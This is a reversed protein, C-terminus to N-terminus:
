LFRTVCLWPDENKPCGPQRLSSAIMRAGNLSFGSFARRRSHLRTKKQEIKAPFTGVTENQPKDGKGPLPLDSFWLTM